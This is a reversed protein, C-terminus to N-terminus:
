FILPDEVNEYFPYELLLGLYLSNLPVDDEKTKIGTVIYSTIFNILRYGIM